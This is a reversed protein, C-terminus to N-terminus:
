VEKALLHESVLDVAAGLTLAEELRTVAYGEDPDGVELEVHLRGPPQGWCSVYALQAPDGPRAVGVACLDGGWHDQLEWQCGAESLRDLFERIAPDKPVHADTM